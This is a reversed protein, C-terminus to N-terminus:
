IKEPFYRFIIRCNCASCTGDVEAKETHANCKMKGKIALTLETTAVLLANIEGKLDIIVGSRSFFLLIHTQADM